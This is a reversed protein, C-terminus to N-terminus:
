KTGAAGLGYIFPTTTPDSSSLSLEIELAPGAPEAGAAFPLPIMTATPASPCWTESWTGAPARARLCVSTGSPIAARLGLGIWRKVMADEITVVVRGRDSGGLDLASGTFDSYTYPSRFPAGPYCGLLNGDVDYEAVHDGHQAVTWMHGESDSGTGLLGSGEGCATLDVRKIWTGDSAFEDVFPRDNEAVWVHGRRDVGLARPADLGEPGGTSVALVAGTKGDLKVVNNCDYNAYWPNGDRDITIGYPSWCGGAEELKPDAAVDFTGLIEGSRSDVKAVLGGRSIGVWLGGDRDAVLGYPYIRDLDVRRLEKCGPVSRPTRDDLIEVTGSTETTSVEILLRKDFCGIWADGDVDVAAARTQCLEYESACIPEGDRDLHIYSGSDRNTVWVSGDAAVSTRNPFHGWTPKRFIEEGTREDLKAIKNESTSTIWVHGSRTAVCTQLRLVGASVELERAALEDGWGAAAVPVCGSAAGLACCADDCGGSAVPESAITEDIVVIEVRRNLARSKKDTNEVRPHAEGYGRRTIREEAVGLGGLYSAVSAARRTSLDDNYPDEGVDDTHGEVVIRANPHPDILTTKVDALLAEAMPKIDTKDFDFLVDGDMTVKVRDTGWTVGAAPCM